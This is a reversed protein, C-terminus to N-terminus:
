TPTHPLLPHAGIGVTLSQIPTALGDGLTLSQYDAQLQQAYKNDYKRDEAKLHMTLTNNLDLM